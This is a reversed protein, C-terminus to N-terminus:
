FLSYMVFGVGLGAILVGAAISWFALSLRIGFLSAAVCASYAGTTPLPIATFLILGIAGYKEVNKSKNLTRHYLWHYFKQYMKFKMLWRSVPQFLLLIPIIPLLNGLLSYFLAEAFSFGYAFALPMGGRLELIPMASVIVVVMEQPLFSLNQELFSRIEEKM